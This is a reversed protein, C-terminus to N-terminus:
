RLKPQLYSVLGSISRSQLYIEGTGTLRNIFGEGSTMSGLLGGALGVNMQNM